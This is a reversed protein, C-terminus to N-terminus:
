DCLELKNWRARLRPENKVLRSEWVLLSFVEVGSPRHLIPSRQTLVERLVLEPEIAARYQEAGTAHYNTGAIWSGRM